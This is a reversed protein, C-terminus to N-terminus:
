LAQLLLQEHAKPSSDKRSEPSGLCAGEYTCKCTGTGTDLRGPAEQDLSPLPPWPQGYRHPPRPLWGPPSPSIVAVCACTGHVVVGREGVGDTGHIKREHRKWASRLLVPERGNRVLPPTPHCATTRQLTLQCLAQTCGEDWHARGVWVRRRRSPCCASSFLRNLSSVLSSSM